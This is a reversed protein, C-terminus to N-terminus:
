ADSGQKFITIKFGDPDTVAFTRAGWPTDSPPGDLTGGRRVVAEALEDVDQDTECLIRFGVGKPRDRGKEFDDQTLNLRGSTAALGVGMLTGDDTKWEESVPFGMVDRYFAISATLDNVTFIPSISGIQLTQSRAQEPRTTTSEPSM